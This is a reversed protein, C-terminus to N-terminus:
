SSEHRILLVGLCGLLKIASNLGLGQYGEGRRVRVKGVLETALEEVAAREEPSMRAWARMVGATTPSEDNRAMAAGM